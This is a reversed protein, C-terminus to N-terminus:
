GNLEVIEGTRIFVIREGINTIHDGMRELSKAVWLLREGSPVTEPDGTMGDILQRYVQEYLLDLESDRSAVARAAIDNTTIYAEVQAALLSCVLDAMQQILVPLSMRGDHMVKLAIGAIGKAHDGMRELDTSIAVAGLIVRLDTAMPQQTAIVELTQREIKSWLQNIREDGSLVEHALDPQRLALARVAQRVARGVLDAMAVVDDNLTALEHDFTSRTFM